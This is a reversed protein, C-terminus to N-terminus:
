YEDNYDITQITGMMDYDFGTFNTNNDDLYWLSNNVWPHELWYRDFAYFILTFTFTAILCAFLAMCILQIMEHLLWCVYPQHKEEFVFPNDRYYFINRYLIYIRRTTIM